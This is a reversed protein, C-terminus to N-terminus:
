DRASRQTLAQPLSLTCDGIVSWFYARKRGIGDAALDADASEVDFYRRWADGFTGGQGMCRWFDRPEDYFVKGRGVVALGDGLMLLAESIQWHGHLASNYPEREYNAPQIGECGTFLYFAPAGSLKRNEYLARILGYHVWGGHPKPDPVLRAGQKVWWWYGPGIRAAFAGPDAPGAFGFGTPGAHAKIARALAPRMLWDAFDAVTLKANRVDGPGAEVSRWGPIGAKMDPVSSDWETTISAPLWHPSTGTTRYAHNRAFYEILLRRELAESPTWIQPAAPVAKADAFTVAQPRGSADLLQEGNVGRIDADPQAATHYANIRGISIEPHAMVNVKRLDSPACESNRDGAFRFRRRGESATTEEWAGDQVLFFDEYREATYQFTATTEGAPDDPFAALLGGVRAPAETYAEDWLGDLDALVIDAPSAVPEGISRVHRVADWHMQAKSGPFLTLGDTRRWYYQRVMFASPFNGVLVLANLDPAADYVARALDRLALVTQGDQHRASAHLRITALGAHFGDRGLDALYTRLSPMIDPMGTETRRWLRDEVLVLVCGRGSGKVTAQATLAEIEAIGDRNRDVTAHRRCAAQFARTFRAYDTPSAPATRPLSSIATAFACLGLIRIM